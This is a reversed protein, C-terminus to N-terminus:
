KESLLKQQGVKITIQPLYKEGGHGIIANLQGNVANVVIEFINRTSLKTDPVLPDPAAKIGRGVRWGIIMILVLVLLAHFVHPPMFAALPTVQYWMFPHDM